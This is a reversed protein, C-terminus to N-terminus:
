YQSLINEMGTTSVAIVTNGDIALNANHGELEVYIAKYWGSFYNNQILGNTYGFIAISKDDDLRDSKVFKCNKIIANTSDHLDVIACLGKSNDGNFSVTNDGGDIWLSDLTASLRLM